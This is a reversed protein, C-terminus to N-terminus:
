HLFNTAGILELLFSLFFQSSVKQCSLNKDKEQPTPEYFSSQYFAQHTREPEFSSYPFKIHRNKGGRFKM